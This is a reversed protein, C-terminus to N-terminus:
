SSKPDVMDETLVKIQLHQTIFFQIAGIFKKLDQIDKNVWKKVYHVEDNGLWVAREALTQIPQDTIYQKICPVLQIKEISKSDAPHQNKCYDKILFELAKRLGPGSIQDLKRQDAEMAQTYIECFSPSLNEIEISIDPPIFHVPESYDLEFSESGRKYNVIFLEKCKTCQFACQIKNVAGKKGLFAQGLTSNVSLYAKCRPCNDPRPCLYQQSGDNLPFHENM